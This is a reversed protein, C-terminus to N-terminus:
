CLGMQRCIWSTFVAVCCKSPSSVQTKILPSNLNLMIEELRWLLAAGQEQHLFPLISVVTQSAAFKSARQASQEVRRLAWRWGGEAADGSPQRGCDQAHKTCLPIKSLEEPLLFLTSFPHPRETLPAQFLPPLDTITLMPIDRWLAPTQERLRPSEGLAIVPWM